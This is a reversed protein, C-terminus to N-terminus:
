IIYPKKRLMEGGRLGASLCFLEDARLTVSFQSSKADAPKTILEIPATKRVSSLYERGTENAGLILTYEPKDTAKISSGLMDSLIERRIRSLTYKKTPLNRVFEAADASEHAARSAYRVIENPSQEGYIRCNYFLIENYKDERSHASRAFVNRAKEPIEAMDKASFGNLITGRLESASKHVIRKVLTFDNIGADTGYRIYEAGLKDNAGLQATIGFSALVSDFVAASGINRGSKEENIAANRYEESSKIGAIRRILEQDGSESGFVLRHVGLAAAVTVGGLAFGEVGASSWPYPLEVVIDAGCLVAAEARAYKDYIAPTGRQTMNGSMILVLVDADEKARSIIYEHGSHLPNLECILGTVNM